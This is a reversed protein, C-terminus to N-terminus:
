EVVEIDNNEPLMYMGPSPETSIVLCNPGGNNDPYVAIHKIKRAGGGAVMGFPGYLGTIIDGVKLQGAKKIAM